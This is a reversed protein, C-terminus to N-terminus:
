MQRMEVMECISVVALRCLLFMVHASGRAMGDRGVQVIGLLLVQMVPRRPVPRRM